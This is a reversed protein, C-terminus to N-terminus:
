FTVRFAYTGSKVEFYARDNEMKSFTVGDAKGAPAGKKLLLAQGEYIPPAQKGLLPLAVTAGTNAPLGLNLTFSTDSKQWAVSIKGYVSRYEAKVWSLNGLPTPQVLAHQFGPRDPDPRLGALYGFYWEGVSGLAFHNRSNMDPGKKDSDWLEWITTAGHDVMYGWSPYDQQNAVRFAQERFGYETLVPLLFATGLFGTSLHDGRKQVDTSIQEAVRAQEEPPTIGFALPLVNMTQTGTSYNGTVPDFHKKQYALAIKQALTELKESQETRGLIRAMKALLRADYFYYLSGIPETPSKVVAVWDGYGKEEYLNNKSHNEIYHLWALMADFNEELIRKDGFFKYVVWPIVVVADAWAPRGAGGSVVITPSVDHVAGDSDQCDTIDHMWKTFFPALNRNYCATPSFIQADGMWGLREDRQPCDTPVSMINSRLGWSINHQIQNLLSDSCAFSGIEPAASHVVLGTLASKDPTGPFGSMEVFRYGHYTFHPEFIETKGTGKLIFTDTARASRLNDTYLTGDPNLLEGFRLVIKTGAPGRVRLRAFGAFNQGMDFIFKGSDIETIKVPEIEKEVRIPPGQQAVLRGEEQLLSAKEWNSDDFNATNWGPIDLRADLTEGNYLSNYVVPSDHVSWSSDTELTDRSGDKYTVVLQLLFRLPGHSYFGPKQWGLGSSWWMNGLLAGAANEGKKLLKTVDYIQYQIRKPYDTWGPTFIDRGVRKGNLYFVYNGLGTVYARAREPTQKLRFTKRVLVSRPPPQDYKRDPKGWTKGGYKEIVKVKLWHADNFGPSQWGPEEKGTVKWSADSNVVQESSDSFVLRLSAILGCINGANNAASVALVNKGERVQPTVDFEYIKAWVNGSGIKQENLYATFYNDATIRLTAKKLAPPQPMTFIKRFYNLQDKGIRTPHWIWFGWPWTKEIKEEEQEKKGIWRARWDTPKFLATEFWAAESYPSPVDGADWTRVKWFYRTASALPAGAFPVHVSQNTPVKGSDWVDGQNKDLLKRSSAVLIQYASQAAGRRSDNVEWSFRPAPTDIGLPNTQYECRLNRPPGPLSPKQVCSFLILLLGLVLVVFASAGALDHFVFFTRM